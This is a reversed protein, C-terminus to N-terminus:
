TYFFVGTNKIVNSDKGGRLSNYLFNADPEESFQTWFSGFIDFILVFSFTIVNMVISMFLVGYFIGGVCDAWFM